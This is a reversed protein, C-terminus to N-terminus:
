LKIKASNQKVIFCFNITPITISCHNNIRVFFPDALWFDDQYKLSNQWNNVRSSNKGIHIIWYDNLYKKSVRKLVVEKIVMPKGKREIISSMRITKLKKVKSFDKRAM